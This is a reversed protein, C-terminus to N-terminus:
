NGAEGLELNEEKQGGAQQGGMKNVVSPRRQSVQSNTRSRRHAKRSGQVWKKLKKMIVSECRTRWMAQVPIEIVVSATTAIIITYSLDGMFAGLFDYFTYTPLAVTNHMRMMIVTFHFLYGTFSANGVLQIVKSTAVFNGFAKYTMSIPLLIAMFSVVFIIKGFTIFMVHFFHSHQKSNRGWQFIYHLTLTVTLMCASGVVFVILLMKNAKKKKRQKKREEKEKLAKREEETNLPNDAQIELNKKPKKRKPGRMTVYAVLSGLYYIVGRLYSKAYYHVNLSGDNYNLYWVNDKYCVWITLVTTLFVLSSTVIIGIKKNKKAIFCVIPMTCYLQFDVVLYWCWGACMVGPIISANKALLFGEWFNHSDCFFWDPSLPGSVFLPCVKWFWLMMMAYAPMIRIYRRIISYIYVPIFEWIGMGQFSMVYKTTALISVYGGMFLFIDVAYFGTEVFTFAWSNKTYDLFSPDLYNQSMKLRYAFEHGFIVWMFGFVRLLEFAQTASNVRRASLLGTLNKAMDWIVTMDPRNKNKKDELTATMRRSKRRENASEYLGLRKLRDKEKKKVFLKKQNVITSYVAMGLMAGFIGLFVYTGFDAVLKEKEFQAIDTVAIKGHKISGLLQVTVDHIDQKTCEAPTCYGIFVYALAGYLGYIESLYYIKDKQENCSEFYGLKNIYRGSNSNTNEILSSIDFKCEKDLRVYKSHALSLLTLTILIHKTTPSM